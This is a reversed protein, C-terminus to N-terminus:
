GPLDGTGEGDEAYVFDYDEVIPLGWFRRLLNPFNLVVSVDVRAVAVGAVEQAM